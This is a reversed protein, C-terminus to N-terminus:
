LLTMKKNKIIGRILKYGKAKTDVTYIEGESLVKWDKDEKYLRIYTNYNKDELEWVFDNKELKKYRWDLNRSISSLDNMIELVDEYRDRPDIMLCKEIINIIERPVHPLYKKRIPFKGKACAIKLSNLDKYKRAQNNYEENGNCMRYLTTGIQYIDIKKDIISNTCQEPAIHKYYVNRLRANGSNNLYLASGFDTLIANDNDSILVNNPKIDCHIIGLSHIYQIASLFDLSYKIVERITLNKNELLNYLSGRELYPMTIYINNEDQSATNINMINPHNCRYIKKSEDFYKDAYKLKKKSIQKLIFKCGLQTDEVLYLNSNVGESKIKKIVKLNVNPSIQM